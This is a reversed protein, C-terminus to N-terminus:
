GRDVGPGRPSLQIARLPVMTRGVTDGGARGSLIDEEVELISAELAEFRADISRDSNVEAAQVESQTRVYTQRVDVLLLGTFRAELVSGEIETDTQAELFCAM